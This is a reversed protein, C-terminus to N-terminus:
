QGIQQAASAAQAAYQNIQGELLSKEQRAESLKTMLQDNESQLAAVSAQEDEVKNELMTRIDRYSTIAEQLATIHNAAQTEISGEPGKLADLLQENWFGVEIM